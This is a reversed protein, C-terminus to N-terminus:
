DTKCEELPMEITLDSHYKEMQVKGKLLLWNM